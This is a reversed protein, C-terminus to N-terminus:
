RLITMTKKQWREIRTFRRDFIIIKVGLGVYGSGFLGSEPTRIEPNPSSLFRKLVRFGSDSSRIGFIRAAVRLGTKVIERIKRHFIRTYPIRCVNSFNGHLSPQYHGACASEDGAANHPLRAAPPFNVRKDPLFNGEFSFSHELV